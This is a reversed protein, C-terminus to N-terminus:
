HETQRFTELSLKLYQYFNSHFREQPDYALKAQLCEPLAPYGRLLQEPRAFKHYTLYFNGKLALALDILEQFTEGTHRLAERDHETHLNLVICAFNDSAWPLAAVTDKEIMRVTGYIVDARRKRLLAAARHMFVTLFNRPVYLETIIESGHNHSEMERHYGDFYTSLQMRDSLYLQGNTRQYHESYIRFAESKDTHALCILKRWMQPSLASQNRTLEPMADADVQVPHYTSAIGRTLFGEQEHDIAFQFDGYQAGEQVRKQLVTLLDEVAVMQVQRELVQRRKLRLTVSEVMGFLGFGGVVRRFLDQNERESLTLIDGGATVVALKEIDGALPALNLARGHINSAIAGGLSVDDVGTPKQRICWINNAEKESQERALSEIVEKFTAGGQFTALGRRSDLALLRNMNKLSVLLARDQMQQGGMAHRGGHTIVKQGSRAAHAMLRQLDGACNAQFLEGDCRELGSHCDTLQCETTTTGIQKVTTNM